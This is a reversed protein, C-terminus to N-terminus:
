LIWVLFLIAYVTWHLAEVIKYETKNEPYPHIMSDIWTHYGWAPVFRMCQNIWGKHIVNYGQWDQLPNEPNFKRDLWSAIDPAVGFIVGTTAMVALFIPNHWFVYAMFYHILGGAIGHNPFTM